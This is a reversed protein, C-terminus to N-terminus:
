VVVPPPMVAMEEMMPRPLPPIPNALPKLKLVAPSRCGILMVADDLPAPALQWPIEIVPPVRLVARDLVIGNIPVAEAALM